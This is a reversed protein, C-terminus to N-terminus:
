FYARGGHILLAVCTTGMGTLEAHEGAYEFIGENATRIAGALGDIIDPNTSAFYADRITNVGIESAVEGAAHGGMGDCVVFLAGKRALEAEETPVRHTTNDQNRERRRGIDTLGAAALRLRKGLVLGGGVPNGVSSGKGATRM